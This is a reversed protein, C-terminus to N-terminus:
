VHARGIEQELAVRDVGIVPVNSAFRYIVLILFTFILKNRVEPLRFANRLAQIM